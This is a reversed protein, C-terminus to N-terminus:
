RGIAFYEMNRGRVLKPDYLNRGDFIVPSKLTAQILDFDPSRFERWETVIILADAQELADSQNSAFRVRDEGAFCLQAQATAVPDYACVTAGAELLDRIVELSSAKRMDDTNAKFALGWVALTKGAVGGLAEFHKM